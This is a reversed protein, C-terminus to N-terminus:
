KEVILFAKHVLYGNNFSFMKEFKKFLMLETYWLDGFKHEVVGPPPLVYSPLM